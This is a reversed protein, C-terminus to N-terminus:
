ILLHSIRTSHTKEEFHNLYDATPIMKEFEITSDKMEFEFTADDGVDSLLAFADSNREIEFRLQVGPQLFQDINALDIRLKISFHFYNATCFM